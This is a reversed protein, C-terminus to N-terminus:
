PKVEGPFNIELGNGAPDEFFLQTLELAAVHGSRYPIGHAELRALFADLGTTQFAVHDLYGRQAGGTQEHGLSLHVLPRDGSYLWHGATSFSPRFGEELGLVTCYFDCVERMLDQPTKINIHDIQM